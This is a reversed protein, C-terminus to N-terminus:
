DGSSRRSPRYRAIGLQRRRIRVANVTHGTRCAVEPDPMTGLLAVAEPTWAVGYTVEPSEEWIKLKRALQSRRQREEASYDQQLAARLARATAAHILVQSWANNQRNVGFAKRWKIVTAGSVRWWHCIAAASECRVARALEEDVLIGVGSPPDLGRCLPWSIPADSWGWVVVLRDRYLCWARQGRQLPPAQYPGSLLALRDAQTTQQRV